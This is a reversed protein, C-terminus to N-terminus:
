IHFYRCPGGEEENEVWAESEQFKIMKLSPLLRSAIRSCDYIAFVKALPSGEELIRKLKYEIQFVAKEPTAANLLYVMKNAHTTGHGGCYVIITHPEDLISLRKLRACTAELQRLDASNDHFIRSEQM